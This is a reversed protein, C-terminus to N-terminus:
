DRRKLEEQIANWFRPVLSSLGEGATATSIFGIHNSHSAGPPFRELRVQAPVSTDVRREYTPFLFLNNWALYGFKYVTLSEEDASLPAPRELVFRGHADAEAEKVAVRVTHPLGPLGGAKTWVGLVVAGPIPQGTRADVVQGSLTTACGTGALALLGLLALIKCTNM